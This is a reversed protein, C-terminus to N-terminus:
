TLCVSFFTFITVFFQGGFFKVELHEAIGLTRNLIM